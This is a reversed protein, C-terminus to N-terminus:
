ILNNNKYWDYTEAFGQELNYKPIIGTESLIKRNDCLFYMQAMELVKESNLMIPKNTLFSIIDNIKGLFKSFPLPIKIVKLKKNFVKSFIENMKNWGYINGDTVFYIGSKMNNQIGFIIYEVLDKIYLMNVFKEEKGIFFTFGKKLSKFLVLFEVDLPGYISCPRFILYPYKLESSTLFNEVELKSKGYNTLPNSTSDEKKPNSDPCPGAASQSSIYIFKKIPVNNKKICDLLNITTLVNGQYYEESQVAKTVGASHVIVDIDTLAKEINEGNLLDCQVLEINFHKLKEAKKLSRYISRVYIKRKVLEEILNFGVFGTGGTVLVKM